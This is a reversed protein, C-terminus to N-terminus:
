VLCPQSGARTTVMSMKFVKFKELNQKKYKNLYRQLTTFAIKYMELARRISIQNPKVEKLSFNLDDDSYKQNQNLLILFHSWHIRIWQDGSVMEFYNKFLLM